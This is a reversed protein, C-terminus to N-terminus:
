KQKEPVQIFLVKDFKHIPGIFFARVSKLSKMNKSIFLSVKKKKLWQRLVKELHDSLLCM